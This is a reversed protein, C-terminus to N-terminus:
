DLEVRAVYVTAPGHAIRYDPRDRHEHQSYWSVLVAATGNRSDDVLGCYSTDGGSPLDLGPRAVDGDWTWLRTVYDVGGRERGALVVRGGVRAVAPAHLWHDHERGDWGLHPPDSRLVWTGGSRGRVFATLSGDAEPLLAAENGVGDELLRTVRGWALGDASHLLEVYQRPEPSDLDCGYAACWFGDDRRLPRWLWWGPDHIRVPPAFSRGDETWTAHSETWRAGDTLRASGFFVWLRDGDPVLKPDRDDLDTSVTAVPEWRELDDSALVRLEGPPDNFHHAASRHVLWTRGRWRALDTVANHRGDDAVTRM